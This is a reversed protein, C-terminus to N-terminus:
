HLMGVGFQTAGRMVSPEEIDVIPAPPTEREDPSSMKDFFKCTM